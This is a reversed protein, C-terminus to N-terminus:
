RMWSTTASASCLDSAAQPVASRTPRRNSAPPTKWVMAANSFSRRQRPATLYSDCVCLVQSHSQAVAFGVLSRQRCFADWLVTVNAPVDEMGWFIPVSRAPDVVRILLM